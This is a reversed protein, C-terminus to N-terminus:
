RITRYFNDQADNWKRDQQDISVWTDHSGFLIQVLFVDIFDQTAMHKRKVIYFCEGLEWVTNLSDVTVNEQSSSCTLLNSSTIKETKDHVQNWSQSKPWYCWHHVQDCTSSAVGQPRM